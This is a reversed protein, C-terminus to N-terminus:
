TEFDITASGAAEVAGVTMGPGFTITIPVDIMAHPTFDHYIVREFDEPGVQEYGWVELAQRVDSSSDGARSRLEDEVAEFLEDNAPQFAILARLLAREDSAFVVGAGLEAECVDRLHRDGRALMVAEATTRNDLQHRLCAMVLHDAAGTKVGDKTTGTGEQLVQAQLAARFADAPPRWVSFRTPMQRKMTASLELAEPAEHLPPLQYLPSDVKFARHQERISRIAAVAHEAWEWVVVEPVIFEVEPGPLISALKKLRAHNFHGRGVCNEDIVILTVERVTAALATARSM